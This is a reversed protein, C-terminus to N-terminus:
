GERQGRVAQWRQMAPQRPAWQGGAERTAAGRQGAKVVAVLNLLNAPRQGGTGKAQWSLPASTMKAGAAEGRGRAAEQQQRVTVQAVLHFHSPGAPWAEEELAAVWVQMAQRLHSHQAAEEQAHGAGEHDLKVRLSYVLQHLVVKAVAVGQHVMKRWGRRRTGEDEEGRGEESQGREEQTGEWGTLLKM